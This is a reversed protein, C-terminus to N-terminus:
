RWWIPNENARGPNNAPSFASVPEIVCSYVADCNKCVSGSRLGRAPDARASRANERTPTHGAVSWQCRYVAPRARALSM